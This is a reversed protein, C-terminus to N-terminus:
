RGKRLKQQYERLEDWRGESALRAQRPWTGPDHDKLDIGADRLLERIPEQERGSLDAWSRIGHQKLVQESEEDLGEIIKLDTPDYNREADPGYNEIPNEEAGDIARSEEDPENDLRALRAAQGIWNDKEIRGPLYGIQATVQQVRATNWTAIQEFTHVGIQNLKQAIFPGIGDIRTLDDPERDPVIIRNDLAEKDPTVQIVPEAPAADALPTETREMATPMEAALGDIREQLRANEAALKDLRVELTALRESAEGDLTSGGPQQRMDAADQYAQHAVASEREGLLHEQQTKLGIIQNNLDDITSAYSKNTSRLQDIESGLRLNESETQKKELELGQIRERLDVRSRELSEMENRLNKHKLELANHAVEAEGLETRVQKLEKRLKRVRSSRLLYAILFGFLFAVLLCVGFFLSERSEMQQFYPLIDEM